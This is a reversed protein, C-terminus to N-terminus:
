LIEDAWGEVEVDFITPLDDWVAVTRDTELQRLWKRCHSCLGTAARTVTYARVNVIWAGDTALSKKLYDICSSMAAKCDAATTCLRGRDCNLLTLLEKTSRHSLELSGYISRILDGKSLHEVSGDLRTWGKVQQGRMQGCLCLATPLLSPTDTLRALIVIGIAYASPHTFTVEADPYRKSFSPTLHRRLAEIGRREVEPINYKHALRVSSFLKDFPLPGNHYM